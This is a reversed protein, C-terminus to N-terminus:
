VLFNTSFVGPDDVGHDGAGIRNIVVGIGERGEWDAIEPKKTLQHPYPFKMSTPAVGPVNPM